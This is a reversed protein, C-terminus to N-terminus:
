DPDDPYWYWHTFPECEGGCQCLHNGLDAQIKQCRPCIVIPPQPDLIRGRFLQFVYLLAFYILFGFLFRMLSDVPPIPDGWPIFKGRWGALNLVLMVAAIGLGLLFPMRPNFRSQARRKAVEIAEINQATRRKWM